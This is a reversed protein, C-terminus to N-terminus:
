NKEDETDIQIMEIRISRIVYVIVKLLEIVM